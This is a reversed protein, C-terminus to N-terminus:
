PLTLGLEFMGRGHTAAILNQGYWALDQVPCNSPGDSSAFWSKGGDRSWLFGLETGMYLYQPNKPHLTLALVPMAPLAKGGSATWLPEWSVGSDSTWWLNDASFGAFTAYVIAPNTPHFVIRTCMRGKPLRREAGLDAETWSPKPAHGQSTRFVRGNNYGIWVVNSDLPSISITSIWRSSPAEGPGPVPLPDSVRRWIPGAAETVEADANETVWLSVGGVYLRTPNTTDLAFPSIFNISPPDTCADEIAYHLKPDKCKRAGANDWYVGSIGDATYGGDQSRLIEGNIYELFFVNHNAPHAACFGGDGSSTVRWGCAATGKVL